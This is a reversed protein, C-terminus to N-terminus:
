GIIPRLRNPKLAFEQKVELLDFLQAFAACAGDTYAFALAASQMDPPNRKTKWLQVCVEDIAERFLPTDVVKQLRNKQESTM